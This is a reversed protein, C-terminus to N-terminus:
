ASSRLGQRASRSAGSDARGSASPGKGGRGVGRRGAHGCDKAELKRRAVKTRRPYAQLRECQENRQQQQREDGRKWAAAVSGAHHDNTSSVSGRWM